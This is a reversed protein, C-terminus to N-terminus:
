KVQRQMGSSTKKFFLKGGFLPLFPRLNDFHSKDSFGLELPADLTNCLSLM